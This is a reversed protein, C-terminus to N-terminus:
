SFRSLVLVLLAALLILAGAAAWLSRSTWWAARVTSRSAEKAEDPFRTAAPLWDVFEAATEPTFLELAIRQLRAQQANRLWLEVQSGKVRAHVVDKLGIKVRGEKWGVGHRFRGALRLVEGQVRAQVEDKFKPIALGSGKVELLIAGYTARVISLSASRDPNFQQAPREGILDAVTLQAGGASVLVDASALTNKIRMGVITKRDYPGITRGQLLVHYVTEDL